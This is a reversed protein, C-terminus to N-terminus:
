YLIQQAKLLIAMAITREGTIELLAKPKAKFEIRGSGNVWKL